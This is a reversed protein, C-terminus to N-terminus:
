KDNGHLILYYQSMFNVELAYKIWKKGLKMNYNISKMFIMKHEASADDTFSSNFSKNFFFHLITQKWKIMEIINIYETDSSITTKQLYWFVDIDNWAFPWSIVLFRFSLIVLSSSLIMLSQFESGAKNTWLSIKRKTALPGPWLSISTSM